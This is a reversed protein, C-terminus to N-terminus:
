RTGDRGEEATGQDQNRWDQLWLGLLPILTILSQEKTVMNNRHVSYYKYNKKRNQM